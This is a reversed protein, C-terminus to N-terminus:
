LILGRSAQLNTRVAESLRRRRNILEAESAVRIYDDTVVQRSGDISLERLMTGHCKWVQKGSGCPCKDSGRYDGTAVLGMLSSAARLSEVGFLECYYELIGRWGHSREGFPYRGYRELFAASYLCSKVPGDIFDALEIGAPSDMLLEGPVGVCLSGDPYRHEFEDCIKGSEEYVSPLANPYGDNLVIRLQYDEVIQCGKFEANLRYPMSVTGTDSDYRVDPYLSSLRSLQEVINPNASLM